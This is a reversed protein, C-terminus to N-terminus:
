GGRRPACSSGAPSNESTSHFSSLLKEVQSSGCHPCKAADRKESGKIIEEFKKGCKRCRFEFLPM